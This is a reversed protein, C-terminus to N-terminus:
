RRIKKKVYVIISHKKTYRGRKKKFGMGVGIVGPKTFLDESYQNCLNTLGIANATGLDLM